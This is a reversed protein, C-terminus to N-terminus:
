IPGWIETDDIRQIEATRHLYHGVRNIGSNVWKNTPDFFDGKSVWGGEEEVEVRIALAPIDGPALGLWWTLRVHHWINLAPTWPIYERWFVGFNEVRLIQSQVGGLLRLYYTDRWHATGLPSQNRFVASAHSAEYFCCWYVIRGYPLVLTEPLRCIVSYPGYAGSTALSTPPSVYRTDDLRWDPGTFDWDGTSHHLEKM